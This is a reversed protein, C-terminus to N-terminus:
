TPKMMIRCAQRPSELRRRVRPDAGLLATMLREAIPPTAATVGLANHVLAASGAPGLGLYELARDVLAGAPRAQIGAATM